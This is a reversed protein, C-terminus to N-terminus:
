IYAQIKDYLYGYFINFGKNMVYYYKFKVTKRKEIKVM